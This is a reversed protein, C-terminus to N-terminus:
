GVQHSEIGILDRDILYPGPVPVLFHLLHHWGAILPHHNGVPTAAVFGMGKAPDLLLLAQGM